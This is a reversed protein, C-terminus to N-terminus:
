LFNWPNREAKVIFFFLDGTSKAHAELDKAQSKWRWWKSITMKLLLCIVFSCLMSLAIALYTVFTLESVLMSCNFIIGYTQTPTMWMVVTNLRSEWLRPIDETTHLVANWRDKTLIFYQLNNLKLCMLFFHQRREGAGFANKFTM